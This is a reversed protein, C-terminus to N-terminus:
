LRGFERSNMINDLYRGKGDM